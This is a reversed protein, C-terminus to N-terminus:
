AFRLRPIKIQGQKSILINAPKLDRHILGAEHAAAVGETLERMLELTEDVSLPARLNFLKKLDQGDVFEMVIFSDQENMGVDYIQVIYPSNLRAVTRAERRFRALLSADQAFQPRLRKLAVKRELSEDQALWVQAMGGEGLLRLLRYRNNVLRNTQDDM